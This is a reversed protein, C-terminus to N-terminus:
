LFKNSKIKKGNKVKLKENLKSELADFDGNQIRNCLIGACVGMFFVPLRSIPHAKALWENWGELHPGFIAILEGVVFEVWFSIVLLKALTANSRKQAFVLM